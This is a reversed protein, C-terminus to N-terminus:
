VFLGLGLVIQLLGIAVTVGAVALTRGKRETARMGHRLVFAGILVALAGGALAVYDIYSTVVGNVTQTSNAHCVFPVLASALGFAQLTWSTGAIGYPIEIDDDDEASM